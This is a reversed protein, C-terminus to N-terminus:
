TLAKKIEDYSIPIYNLREVSVNFYRIDPVLEVEDDICVEYKIVNNHLHGHFNCKWRHMASVHVPIHTLLNGDFQHSGRVDKFYLMYESLKATDHNGKILTKVGNCRRIYHLQTHSMSVDGLHYVNDTPKVVSNWADIMHENMEEISSFSRLLSGDPNTFTLINKHGFHHDSIFFTNAM